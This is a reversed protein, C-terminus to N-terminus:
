WTRRVRSPVALELDGALCVFPINIACAEVLVPLVNFVDLRTLFRCFFMPQDMQTARSDDAKARNSRLVAPLFRNHSLM